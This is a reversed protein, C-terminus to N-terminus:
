AAARAKPETAHPLGTEGVHGSQQRVPRDLVAARSTVSHFPKM